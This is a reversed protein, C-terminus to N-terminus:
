ADARDRPAVGCLAALEDEGEEPGLSILRDGARLTFAPRPRYIWRRGRQVALIFMGTETEVRLDEIFVRDM